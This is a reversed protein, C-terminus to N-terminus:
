QYGPADVEIVANPVTETSAPAEPVPRRLDTHVALAALRNGLVFAAGAIRPAAGRKALAAALRVVRQRANTRAAELLRVVLVEEDTIRLSCAPCDGAMYAFGLRREARVARLLAAVHAVLAPGDSLGLASEAIDLAREWGRINDNALSACLHRMAALALREIPELELDDVLRHRGAVNHCADAVPKGDTAVLQL